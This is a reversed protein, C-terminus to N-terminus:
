LSEFAFSAKDFAAADDAANWTLFYFFVGHKSIDNSHYFLACLA